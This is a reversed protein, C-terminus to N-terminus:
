NGELYKRARQLAEREGGKDGGMRVLERYYERAKDGQGAQEAARAAGYLSNLRKPSVALSEEYAHLAQAPQDNALLMDGFLERAPLPAGPTVPHKDVSDEVKAARRMQKLALGKQGTAYVSWARVALRQADVRTAWYEEGAELTRQHLEDMKRAAAEAGEPDGARAAGIGRTFQILSEVWPYKHWPFEPHSRERLDAAGQWDRTELPFRARSAAIGYASAFKDQPNEAATVKELVQQAKEDRGQQLYAYMLYDLAHYYHLSTADGAPQRKAAAASRINWDITDPWIGLRVFIHSPMHLAHPVEPAIKDYDRAVQLADEALAPNDYSHILYHYVAPHQPARKRLKQLLSGARRQHHYEKDDAPATAVLSLAYLAGADNDQPNDDFVRKQAESWARLKEGHRDQSWDRFFAAAADIYARERETPPNLSEAKAIAETGTAVAEPPPPAWLPHFSAMALGWYAMACDPDERTIETFTDTAQGYMMHHLLALAHNFDARVDDSCSIPFDVEGIASDAPDPDGAGSTTEACIGPVSLVATVLLGWTKRHIKM